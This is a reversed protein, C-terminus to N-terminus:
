PGLPGDHWFAVQRGDDRSLDALVWGTHVYFGHGRPYDALTWLVAEHFGARGLDGLARRMLAGGVGRRWWAPAVAITDLEGLGARLPDRSAGTGAFGLLAQGDGAVRWCVGPDLLEQAWRDVDEDRLERRPMLDGFGDNWSDVYIRAVSAADSARARRIVLGVSAIM